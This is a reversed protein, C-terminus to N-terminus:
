MGVMDQREALKYSKESLGPNNRKFREREQEYTQMTSPLETTGHGCQKCRKANAQIAIPDSASM